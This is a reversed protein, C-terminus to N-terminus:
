ILFNSLKFPNIRFYISFLVYVAKLLPIKHLSEFKLHNQRIYKVLSHNKPLLNRRTSRLYFLLFMSSIENKLLRYYSTNRLYNEIFYAAQITEEALEISKTHSVSSSHQIYNYIESECAVITKSRCILQIFIAADEGIRMREPLQLPFNFLSKKYLKGCLEWGNKGILVSKLYSIEGISSFNPRKKKVNKEKYVINFGFVIIDPFSVFMMKNILLTLANSTLTDDVDLFMLYDGLSSKVGLERAKVVGQNERSFYRIRNDLESYHKLHEDTRDMSGDNICIAEWNTYSQNLLSTLCSAIYSEGNYIPIIISIKM